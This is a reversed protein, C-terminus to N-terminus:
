DLLNAMVGQCKLWQLIETVCFDQGEIRLIHDCDEIDFNIRTGPLFHQMKELVQEAKQVAVIDTTFVEIM